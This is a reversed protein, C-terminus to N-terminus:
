FASHNCCIVFIECIFQSNKAFMSHAFGGYSNILITVPKTVDEQRFGILNEVVDHVADNNIAGSIMLIRNDKLPEAKRDKAM